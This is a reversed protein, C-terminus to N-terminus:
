NPIKFTLEDDGRRYVVWTEKPFEMVDYTIEGSDFANVLLQRANSNPVNAQSTFSNVALLVLILCVCCWAIDLVLSRRVSIWARLERLKNM